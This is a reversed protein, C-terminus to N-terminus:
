VAWPGNPRKKVRPPGDYLARAVTESVRFRQWDPTGGVLFACAARVYSFEQSLWRVYVPYEDIRSQEILPAPPPPTEDCRSDAYELIYLPRDGDGAMDHLQEFSRGFSPDFMGSSSQFYCNAGVADFCRLLPPESENSTDGYGALWDDLDYMNQLSRRWLGPSWSLPPSVLVVDRPLQGRARMGSLTWGVRKAWWQYQSPGFEAQGWAAPHNPENDTQAVRVGEAYFALVDRAAQAAYTTYSPYAGSPYRSDRLRLIFQANPLVARIRRVDAPTHNAAMLKVFAFRGAAMVALDADGIPGNPACAGSIASSM